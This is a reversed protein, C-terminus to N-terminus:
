GTPPKIWRKWASSSRTTGDLSTLTPVAGVGEGEVTCNVVMALYHCAARFDGIVQWIADAPAYIMIKTLAQTM